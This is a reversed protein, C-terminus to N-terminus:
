RTKNTKIKFVKMGFIYIVKKYDYAEKIKIITMGFFKIKTKKDWSPEIKMKYKNMFRRQFQHAQAQDILKKSDAYTTHVISCSNYRYNYGVSPIMVALGSLEMVQSSWVIDEYYMGIPFLLENKIILDKKYIKNWVYNNTPMKFIKFKGEPTTANKIEKVSYLTKKQNNKVGCFGTGVIDAKREKAINYLNQYFDPEIWDDSDVFGIYEGSAAKIGINRAVCVGSNKQNIIIIRKDKKEYDNLIKSSNDTSGDNVCIIELDTLTQTLLSDLCQPLFEEVNYVPVIVSIKKM